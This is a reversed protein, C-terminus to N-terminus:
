ECGNSIVVAILTVGSGPYPMYETDVAIGLRLERGGAGLSKLHLCHVRGQM